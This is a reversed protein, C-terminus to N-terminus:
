HSLGGDPQSMTAGFDSRHVRLASRSPRAPAERHLNHRRGRRRKVFIKALIIGGAFGALFVGIAGLVVVGAM